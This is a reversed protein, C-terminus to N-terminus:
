IKGTNIYSYAKQFLLFRGPVCCRVVGAYHHIWFSVGDYFGRSSRKKKKKKKNKTPDFIDLYSAPVKAEERCKDVFSKKIENAFDVDTLNRNLPASTVDNLISLIGNFRHRAYEADMLRCCPSNDRYAVSAIEALGESEYLVAENKFVYDNFINQLTENTYNILLQEFSNVDFSEFGFIDLIGIVGDHM